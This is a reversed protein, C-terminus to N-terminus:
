DLMLSMYPKHNEVSRFIEPLSDDTKGFLINGLQYITIDYYFEEKLTVIRECIGDSLHYYGENEKLINDTIKIECSLDKHKAAFLQLMKEANIVRAMGLQKESNPIPPVICIIHDSNMKGAIEKLLMNRVDTDEAFLEKIKTSSEEKVCFAVGAIESAKKAIFLKGGGLSLDALIIEFDEFTHQICCPREMMKKNFYEYVEKSGKSEEVMVEGSSTSPSIDFIETSYDFVATYDFKRYYDFLWKEAPILTSVLINDTYKKKFTNHLLEKMVGKNRYSPYTCAGSIYSTPIVDNLFTMPYPIMQLSAVVDEGEQIVMTIDDKYRKDFYLNLFDESDNFSLKWLSRIKEKM